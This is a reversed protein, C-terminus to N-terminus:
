SKVVETLHHRLITCQNGALLNSFLLLNRPQSQLRHDVLRRMSDHVLKHMPSQSAVTDNALVLTSPAFLPEVSQIQEGHIDIMQGDPLKYHTTLGANTKYQEMEAEFDSFLFLKPYTQAM